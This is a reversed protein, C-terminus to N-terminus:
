RIFKGKNENWWREKSEEALDYANDETALSNQITQKYKIFNLIKQLSLIDFNAPLRVITENETREIIMIKGQTKM